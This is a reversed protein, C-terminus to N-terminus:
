QKNRKDVTMMNVDLAMVPEDFTDANLMPVYEALKLSRLEEISSIYVSHGKMMQVMYPAEDTVIKKTMTFGNEDKKCITVERKRPPLKVLRFAPRPANQPQIGSLVIPAKFQPAGGDEGVFDIASMDVDKGSM